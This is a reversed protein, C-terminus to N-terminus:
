IALQLCCGNFRQISQLCLLRLHSSRVYTQRTTVRRHEAMMMVTLTTSEPRTSVLVLLQKNDLIQQDATITDKRTTHVYENAKPSILNGVALPLSHRPGKSM